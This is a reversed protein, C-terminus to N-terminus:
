TIEKNYWLVKSSQKDNTSINGRDKLIYWAKLLEVYFAPIKGVFDRKIVSDDYNCRLLLEIGGLSMLWQSSLTKWMGVSENLIQGLWKLRFGAVIRKVDIMKLGGHYYDKAVVSRKVKDVKSNWLFSYILKNLKVIIDDPTACYM